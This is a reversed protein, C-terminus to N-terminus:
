DHKGRKYKYMSDKSSLYGVAKTISLWAHDLDTTNDLSDTLSEIAKVIEEVTKM